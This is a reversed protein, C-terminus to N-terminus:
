GLRRSRRSHSRLAATRNSGHPIHMLLLLGLEPNEDIFVAMDHVTEVSSYESVAGEGFGEYDHIAYEEAMREPSDKLMAQIQAHIEEPEDTAEIWRGHLKGANYAALCAVYIRPEVTNLTSM